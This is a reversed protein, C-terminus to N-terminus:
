GVAHIFFGDAFHALDHMLKAALNVQVTGVHVRLHPDGRRAIDARIYRVEVQM